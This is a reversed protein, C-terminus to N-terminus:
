AARGIHITRTEGPKRGEYQFNLEVNNLLRKTFDVSWLYNSGPLLGDLMIYSVTTNTPHNYHINDYTFKANVSSNQLVNYKTEINVANSLSKEGGYIANNKKDNFRYSSQLRFTTGRIFTLRPEITSIKLEYNRNGFSPTYLANVGRKSVIDFNFSQSIFWRLKLIWDRQKRSEYGYTLLAKGTNQLNSLDMGWKTGYRNFSLTNLFSTNLTLLATDTVGYKFPNFEFDGKAISKKSKQMSTQLNFKSAFKSFSSMNTRNLVTRPNFTFSYNITTYNAKVFQNTPIFIRIFKAQDQFLAVEFENLQQINDNNYDNWTYEGQGAPVELYAFDRKQEQGAGLEYLVNGTVFGKLENIVYEARGLITRDAKQKSVLSDYVNLKRFTTNFLFQHRQSKLLEVQLNINYSRDGRILEKGAPYKDSRTFFTIGYKNKKTEDSRLYASYTDFSFSLASISDKTRNHVENKELAYRAGARVSNLQKFQKSVDIVPRIFTGKDFNNKFTTIAFQNNFTFGNINSTQQFINQLGDYDDSRNYTMFQYSLSNDKSKLQTAFRGINETAPNLVLPLGWERSFEVYRLRELPRFRQQVHEFDITSILQIKKLTNLDSTNTYQVRLATGADDGEDRSSFTNVDFNSVAVETKVSNRDNIQYDTAVSILQQKKPTVLVMVPEFQGQKIGGVPMVFRYVKGNAGNFDPVYNGRGQGVDTFSLSYKAVSPDVSYQYFSDTVSGNTYYVKEYLIRDSAFSDVTATPYFAQNISDGINFLFQKQRADLTQNIQSNKADSNNFAGVKINLKKNVQVSQSLFLNANLYNRDAYEFEIQIRSDKTIMRRPTFTVEATNYNIVYDQDEGRQLLEGDLYVRETGALVIFFFENNAGTLRYPGQNGELGQFINRTFKGKAISGSVLTSSEVSPSLKNTTQFSIGQLRKYFNLFYLDKQRIDIDGLNLQWNKKKFQLFVQDFENLQQTTGDPQIPINNDTIAAAIEISDALMGNLQLNFNSNVVADQNNGFSIGRGFSGNYQLDGFDFIGKENNKEASTNIPEIYFKNVVSDYNLHQIASNLKYPFVRYVVSVSDFEPRKRWYLTANVFDLHYASDAVNVISFTNPIISLSDLVLSDSAVTITKIRLNSQASIQAKGSFAFCLLAILLLIRSM